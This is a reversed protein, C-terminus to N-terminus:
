KAYLTYVHTLAQSLLFIIDDFHLKKKGM